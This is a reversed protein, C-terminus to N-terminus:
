WGGPARRRDERTWEQRHNGRLAEAAREFTEYIGLNGDIAKTKPTVPVAVFSGEPDKVVAGICGPPVHGPRAELANGDADIATIRFTLENM